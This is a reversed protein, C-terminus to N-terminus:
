GWTKLRLRVNDLPFQGSAAARRTQTPTEGFARKYAKCFYAADAFGCRLAIERVPVASGTALLDAAYQLRLRLIMEFATCGFRARFDACFKSVSSAYRAALQAATLPETYHQEMYRAVVDLPTCTHASGAGFFRAAFDYTMASLVAERREGCYEAEIAALQAALTGADAQPYLVFPPDGYHALLPAVGAGEFTLWATTLGGGDEYDHPVVPDTYFACGRRLPHTQGDIRLLGSGGTVALIQHLGMGHPRFVSEQQFSSAVTVFRFPLPRDGPPLNNRM